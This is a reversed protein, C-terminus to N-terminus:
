AYYDISSSSQQGSGQAGVQSDAEGDDRQGNSALHGRGQQQEQEDSNSQGDGQQINSEGLEIGQEALMERLKPMSQELAEKAQQNQVVFNIQAQEADSRIRIQMSGMEPPDLRIEAEKNNISLLASVREQLLKAADSKVINLAQLLTPDVNVQKTQSAANTQQANHVQMDSLEQLYRQDVAETVPASVTANVGNTVQTFLQNVRVINNEKTSLQETNDDDTILAEKALDQQIDSKVAQEQVAVKTLAAQGSQSKNTEVLNTAVAQTVPAPEKLTAISEKTMTVQDEELVALASNVQNLVAGQPKETAIFQQLQNSLAQKQGTTLTAIEDSFEAANFGSDAAVNRATDASNNNVIFQAITHKLNAVGQKDGGQNLVATVETQLTARQEPTLRALVPDSDTLVDTEANLLKIVAQNVEPSNAIVSQAVKSSSSTTVPQSAIFAEKLAQADKALSPEVNDAKIASQTVSVLPDASSKDASKSVMSSEAQSDKNHKSPIEVSDKNDSMPASVVSKTEVNDNKVPKNATTNVEDITNQLGTKNLASTLVEPNVEGKESMVKKSDKIVADSNMLVTTNVEGTKNKNLQAALVGEESKLGNDAPEQTMASVLPQTSQADNTPANANLSGADTTSKNIVAQTDSVKIAKIEDVIPTVADEPFGIQKLNKDIAEAVASKDSPITSKNTGGESSDDELPVSIIPTVADIPRPAKPEISKPDISEQAYKDILDSVSTLPQEVESTSVRTDLNNAANIQALMDDGSIAPTQEGKHKVQAGEIDSEGVNTSAPGKSKKNPEEAASNASQLQSFFDSASDSKEDLGSQQSQEKRAFKVDQETSILASLDNIAM